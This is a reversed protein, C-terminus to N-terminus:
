SRLPTVATSSLSKETSGSQDPVSHNMECFPTTPVISGPEPVTRVM